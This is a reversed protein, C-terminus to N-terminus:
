KFDVDFAQYFAKGNNVIIWMLVIVHQGKKNAPMKMEHLKKAKMEVQTYFKPSHNLKLTRM